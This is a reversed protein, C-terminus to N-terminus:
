AAGREGARLPVIREIKRAVIASTPCYNVFDGDAPSWDVTKTRTYAQVGVWDDGTPVDVLRGSSLGTQCASLM